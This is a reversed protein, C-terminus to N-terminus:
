SEPPTHVVWTLFELGYELGHVVLLVGVLTSEVSLVDVEVNALGSNSDLDEKSVSGEQVFHWLLQLGRMVADKGPVSFGFTANLLLPDASNGDPHPIRLVLLGDVAGHLHFVVGLGFSTWPVSSLLEVRAIEHVDDLCRIDVLVLERKFDQDTGVHLNDKSGEQITIIDLSSVMCVVFREADAVLRCMLDVLDLGVILLLQVVALVRESVVKGKTLLEEPVLGIVTDGADEVVDAGDFKRLLTLQVDWVECM